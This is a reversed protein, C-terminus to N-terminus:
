TDMIESLPLIYEDGDEDYCYATEEDRPFVSVLEVKRPPQKEGRYWIERDIFYKM